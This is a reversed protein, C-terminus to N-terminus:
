VHARGIEGDDPEAPRLRVVANGSFDAILFSVARAGMIAALEHTVVEIAETPAAAEVSELLTRFDPRSRKPEPLMDHGYATGARQWRGLLGRM